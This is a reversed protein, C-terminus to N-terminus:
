SEEKDIAAELEEVSRGTHRPTYWLEGNTRPKVVVRGKLREEYEAVKAAVAEEIINRLWEAPIVVPCSLTELHNDEGPIWVHYNACHSDSTVANIAEIAEDLQRIRYGRRKCEEVVNALRRAEDAVKAAITDREAEATIVRSIIGEVRRRDDSDFAGLHRILFVADLDAADAEMQAALATAIVEQVELGRLRMNEALDRVVASTIREAPNIM